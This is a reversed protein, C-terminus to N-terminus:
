ITASWNRRERILGYPVDQSVAVTYSTFGHQTVWIGHRHDMACTRAIEVAANLDRALSAPDNATVEWLIDSLNRIM